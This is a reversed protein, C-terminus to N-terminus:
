CLRKLCLTVSSPADDFMKSLELALPFVEVDEIIMFEM